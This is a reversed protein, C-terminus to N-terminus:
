MPKWNKNAIRTVADDYIEKAMQNAALTYLSKDGVVGLTEPDFISVEKGNYKYSRVTSALYYKQYFMDTVGVASRYGKASSVLQTFYNNTVIKNVNKMWEHTEDIQGPAYPSTTRSNKSFTKGGDDSACMRLFKVAVDKKTSKESIFIGDGSTMTINGRAEAATKVDNEDIQVGCQTAVEATIEAVTKNADVALAITKLVQDCKDTSLNYKTGEGYLKVGLASLMPAKMFVIDNLQNPYSKYMENFMWDGTPCFVAKGQMLKTQAEMFTQSGTNTVCRNPDYMTFIAELVKSTKETYFLDALEASPAGSLTGDVSLPQNSENYFSWFQAHEEAGGYQSMWCNTVGMVYNNGTLAYTFPKLATRWTKQGAAVKAASDAMIADACAFFENTTIPLSLGLADLEKKNVAIGGVPMAYPIGYFKGDDAKITTDFDYKIKEGITIDEETGDYRIAKQNLVVETIDMFCQGYEGYVADQAKAGAFYVDVGSNSYIEQYVNTGSLDTRPPLINLTYGEDAFTTEFATKLANIYETGYGGEYIKVNLVKPDNSVEGGPKKCAALLSTMSAAALTIAIIKKTRM